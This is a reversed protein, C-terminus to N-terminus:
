NIIKSSFFKNNGVRVSLIPLDLLVKGNLFGGGSSKRKEYLNVFDNHYYLTPSCPQYLQIKFISHRLLVVANGDKDVVIQRIIDGPFLPVTSNQEKDQTKFMVKNSEISLLGHHLRPLHIHDSYSIHKQHYFFIKGKSDYPMSVAYQGTFSKVYTIGVENDTPKEFFGKYVHTIGGSYTFIYLFGQSNGTMERINILEQNYGIGGVQMVRQVFIIDISRYTGDGSRVLTFCQGGCLLLINERLTIVKNIRELPSTFLCSYNELSYISTDSVIVLLTDTEQIMHISTIIGHLLSYEVHFPEFYHYDYHWKYIKGDSLFYINGKSDITSCDIPRDWLVLSLLVGQEMRPSFSVTSM